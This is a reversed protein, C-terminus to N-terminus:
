RAGIYPDRPSLRIAQGVLPIVEDILGASLKCWGLTTLAAVLNHDLALAAEFELIAEEWRKQARLVDGKVFHAFAYRPSAALSQDVLGEARALDTAAAETMGNLVRGVLVAALRSQAEVSQPDRAGPMSSCASGSKMPAVHCPSSALPAGASFITLRM